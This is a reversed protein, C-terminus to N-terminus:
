NRSTEVKIGQGRFSSFIIFNRTSESYYSLEFKDGNASSTYLYCKKFKTQRVDFNCSPWSDSYILGQTQIKPFIAPCDRVKVVRDQFTTSYYGWRDIPYDQPSIFQHPELDPRMGTLNERLSYEFDLENLASSCQAIPYKRGSPNVDSGLYYQNLAILIQQMHHLRQADRIRASQYFFGFFGTVILTLILFLVLGIELLNFWEEKEGQNAFNEADSYDYSLYTPQM